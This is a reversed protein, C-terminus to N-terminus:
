YIVIGNIVMKKVPFEVFIRQSGGGSVRSTFEVSIRKDKPGVLPTGDHHRPFTLVFEQRGVEGLEFAIPRVKVRHAGILFTMNRVQELSMKQWDQMLERNYVPVNSGFSVYVSVTDPFPANLYQEAQQDFSSQQEPTLEDYKMRLQAMRVEAQRVPLASRFQVNYFIRPNAERGRDTRETEILEIVHDAIIYTRAWPSNQLLKRCEQESWDKYDKKQWFDKAQGLVTVSLCLLLITIRATSKRM